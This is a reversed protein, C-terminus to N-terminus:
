REFIAVDDRKTYLRGLRLALDNAESRYYIYYSM